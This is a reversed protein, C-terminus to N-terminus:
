EKKWLLGSHSAVSKEEAEECQQAQGEAGRLGRGPLWCCGTSLVSAQIFQCPCPVSSGDMHGTAVPRPLRGSVLLRVYCASFIVLLQQAMVEPPGEPILHLLENCMMPEKKFSEGGSLLPSEECSTDEATPVAVEMMVCLQDLRHRWGLQLLLITQPVWPSLSCSKRGFSDEWSDLFTCSTPTTGRM